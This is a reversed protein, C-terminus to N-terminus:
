PHAALNIAAGWRARDTEWPGDGLVVEVEGKRGYRLERGLARKGAEPTIMLVGREAFQRRVHESVMGPGEWPGWNLAVVRGQWRADLYLALKNLVENAAAYDAQGRSGFCGAVSSFFVLFRTDPRLTRALVFAGSVKTNFVRDFSDPSKDEIL